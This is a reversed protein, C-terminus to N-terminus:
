GQIGIDEVDMTKHTLVKILLRYLSEASSQVAVVTEHDKPLKKGQDKYRREIGQMERTDRRLRYVSQQLDAVARDNEALNADAFTVLFVALAAPTKGALIDANYQEAASLRVKCQLECYLLHCYVHKLKLKIDETAEQSQLTSCCERAYTEMDSKFFIKAAQARSVLKEVEKIHLQMPSKPPSQSERHQRDGRGQQRAGANRSHSRPRRERPQEAEEPQTDDSMPSDGDDTQARRTHYRAGTYANGGSSERYNTWEDAGPAPGAKFSYPKSSPKPHPKPQPKPQPKPFPGPFQSGQTSEGQPQQPKGPLGTAYPNTKDFKARAETDRLVEWAQQIIIFEEQSGGKDPHATLVLKNYATKIEATKASRSCGLVAYHNQNAM